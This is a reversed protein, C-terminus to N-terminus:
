SLHPKEEESLIKEKLIEWDEKAHQVYMNRYNCRWLTEPHKLFNNLFRFLDPYLEMADQRFRLEFSVHNPIEQGITNYEDSLQNFKQFNREAMEHIMKIHKDLDEKTYELRVVLKIYRRMWLILDENDRWRNM